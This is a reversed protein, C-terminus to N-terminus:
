DMMNRVLDLGSELGREISSLSFTEAQLTAILAEVADTCSFSGDEENGCTYTATVKTDAPRNGLTSKITIMENGESEIYIIDYLDQLTLSMKM